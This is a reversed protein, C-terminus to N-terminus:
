METGYDDYGSSPIEQPKRKPMKAKMNGFNYTLTFGFSRGGHSNKSDRHFNDNITVTHRSRSDLLDRANLSLSWSQNFTKRLGIDLMYDPEIHGQAVIRRANYRGSIQMTISWPLMISAAMRANWSFHEDAKGTVEHGNIIYKFADLKYYFLNVTTTLDLFKFLKNKGIIELGASQEKAVNEHTTYIVKEENYSIREIVDDTTRYYASM